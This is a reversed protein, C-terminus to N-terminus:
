RGRPRFWGPPRRMPTVEAAEMDGAAWTYRTRVSSPLQQEPIREFGFEGYFEELGRVAYMWLDENHCAEILAGFAKRAYGRGRFRDPTFVADVEYGDPHHRCRALSVVTREVIVGFVRDIAPDGKTEHYDHWVEDALPFEGALLERVEVALAGEPVGVLVPCPGALTVGSAVPGLSIGAIADSSGVRCLAILTSREEVAVEIITSVVEGQRQAPRVGLSAAMSSLAEPMGTGVHLLVGEGFGETQAFRRACDCSTPSLDTPLLVRSFLPGNSRGRVVLVDTRALRLVAESVSGLLRDLARGRGRAGLVVLDTSELAATELIANAVTREGREVIRSSVELGQARLRRAESELADGIGNEGTGVHVLVIGPRGPLAACADAARASETSLDTPVLVSHWTM